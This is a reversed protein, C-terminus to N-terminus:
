GYIAICLARWAKSSRCPGVSGLAHTLLGSSCHSRKARTMNCHRELKRRGPKEAVTNLRLAAIARLGYCAWFLMTIPSPM